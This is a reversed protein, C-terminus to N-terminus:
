KVESVTYNDNVQDLSSEDITEVFRGIEDYVRYLTRKTVIKTHFFGDGYEKCLLGSIKNAMREAESEDTFIHKTKTEHGNSAVVYLRYKM